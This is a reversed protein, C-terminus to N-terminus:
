DGGAEPAKSLAQLFDVPNQYREAVDRATLKQVVDRFEASIMLEHVPVEETVVRYLMLLAGEHPFPPKGALCLFLIVGLVFLDARIDSHQGQAQEPALYGATGFVVGTQTTNGSLQDHEYRVIGLDIIVAGRDPHLIINSPKLDLRSVGLAEAQVLANGIDTALRAAADPRMPGQDRIVKELTPGQIYEMVLAPDPGDVFDLVRVVNPHHFLQGVQAERQLRSRFGEETLLARNLMKVAVPLGTRTDRGQYVAGMGGQGILERVEYRDALVAIPSVTVPSIPAAAQAPAQTRDDPADTAPSPLPMPGDDGPVPETAPPTGAAPRATVTADHLHPSWSVDLHLEARESESRRAFRDLQRRLERTLKYYSPQVEGPNGLITADPRGAESVVELVNFRVLHRLLREATNSDMRLLPDIGPEQGEVAGAAGAVDAATFSRGRSRLAWDVVHYGGLRWRDEDLPVPTLGGPLGHDVAAAVLTELESYFKIREWDERAIRLAPAGDEWSVHSNFEQLLRRTLGRAKYALYKNFESKRWPNLGGEVSDPVTVDTASTASAPPSAWASLAVGPRPAARTLETVLREPATWLCPVYMRWAFVSDYTGNGRDADRVAREHLDVGAVLVFHAGRATLVNKLRALTKELEDLADARNDTLRDIEDLVVVPHIRLRGGRVRRRLTRRRQREPRGETGSLLRIIRLLDHEVDTESYALFAAETAQERTRRGSLNLTPTLASLPGARGTLGTGLAAGAEVSESHTQTYSLSTRMYSLLLKGQIERPLRQLLDRDELAEVIRRVVAFLLEDATMPRALTLHVTLLEEGGSWEEAAETLARTVLTSKGVGRFGTVLFAGGHSYRLRQKLAEVLQEHGLVPIASDGAPLPEHIYRFGQHLGVNLM